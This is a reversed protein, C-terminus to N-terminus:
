LGVFELELESVDLRAIEERFGGASKRRVVVKESVKKEMWKEILCCRRLNAMEEDNEVGGGHM